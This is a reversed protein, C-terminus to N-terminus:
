IMHQLYIKKYDELCKDINSILKKSSLFSELTGAHNIDNRCNTLGEYKKILESYRPNMSFFDTIKLIMDKNELAENNWESEPPKQSFIKIAQGILIRHERSSSEFELENCISCITAEQLITVVQPYLGAQYCWDASMIADYMFNGSFKELKNQVYSFLQSFEPLIDSEISSKLKDSLKMVSDSIQMLRSTSIDISLNKICEAIDRLERSSTDGVSLGAKLDKKVLSLLENGQNAKVFLQLARTWDLLDVFKTLEVLSGVKKERSFEGYFIRSRLNESCVRKISLAALALIPMSRFSHTIDIIVDGEDPLSSLLKSFVESIADKTNPIELLEYQFEIDHMKLSSCLSTKDNELFHKVRSEETLFIKVEVKRGYENVITKLLAEQAYKTFVINGDPCLYEGEDYNGTGLFSYLIVPSSNNSM